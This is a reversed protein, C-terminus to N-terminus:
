SELTPAPEGSGAEVLEDFTKVLFLLQDPDYPTNKLAEEAYAHINSQQPMTRQEGIVERIRPLFIWQMWQSFDLTDYCFPQVSALASSEPATESWLDLRRLETEINDTVAILADHHNMRPLISIGEATYAM